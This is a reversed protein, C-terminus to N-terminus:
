SSGFAILSIVFMCYWFLLADRLRVGGRALTVLFLRSSDIGRRLLAEGVLGLDLRRLPLGEVFFCDEALIFTSFGAELRRLRLGEVFFRDELFIFTSVDSETFIFTSFYDDEDM